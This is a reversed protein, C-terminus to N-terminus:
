YERTSMLHSNLLSLFSYCASRPLSGCCHAWHNTTSRFCQPREVQRKRDEIEKREITAKMVPRLLILKHFKYYKLTLCTCWFFRVCHMTVVWQTSRVSASVLSMYCSLSSVSATHICFWDRCCPVRVAAPLNVPACHTTMCVRVTSQCHQRRVSFCPRFATHQVSM